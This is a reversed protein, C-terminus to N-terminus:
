KVSVAAKFDLVVLTITKIVKMLKTDCVPHSVSVIYKGPSLTACLRGDGDTILTEIADTAKNRFVVPM